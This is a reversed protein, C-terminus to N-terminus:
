IADPEAIVFLAREAIFHYSLHYFLLVSTPILNNVHLVPINSTSITLNKITPLFLEVGLLLCM